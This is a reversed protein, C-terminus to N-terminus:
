SLNSRYIGRIPYGVLDGELDLERYYMYKYMYLHEKMIDTTSIHRIMDQEFPNVINKEYKGCLHFAYTAPIKKFYVFRSFHLM